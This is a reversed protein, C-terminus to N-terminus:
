WTAVIPAKACRAAVDAMLCYPLGRVGAEDKVMSAQRPAAEPEPLMRDTSFHLGDPWHKAIWFRLNADIESGHCQSRGNHYDHGIESRLSTAIPRTDLKM